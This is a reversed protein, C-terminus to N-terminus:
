DVEEIKKEGDKKEPNAEELGPIEDDDSDEDDDEGGMNMNAFQSMDFGGPMGEMGMGGMGGMGPMGGMGGMGPMGGMGSMDFNEAEDAEDEDVWKNWDVKLWNRKGGEKLLRDWYPGEEKRKLVFEVQRPRVVFKSQETDIEGFLEMDIHYPRKNSTGDFTLKTPQLDVKADKVDQIDLSIYITDPRQAWSVNPHAVAAM